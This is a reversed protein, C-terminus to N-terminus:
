QPLHHHLRTAQLGPQVPCPCRAVKTAPRLITRHIWFMGIKHSNTSPLVIELNWVGGQQQDTGEAPVVSSTLRTAQQSSVGGITQLLNVGLSSNVGMSPQQLSISLPNLSGAPQPRPPLPQITALKGSVIEKFCNRIDLSAFLCTANEPAKLIRANAFPTPSMEHHNSGQAPPVPQLVVERKEGRREEEEERKKVKRAEEEEDEKRRVVSGRREEEEEERPRKRGEQELPHGSEPM